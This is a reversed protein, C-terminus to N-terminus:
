LGFRSWTTAGIAPRRNDYARASRARRMRAHRRQAHASGRRVGSRRGSHPMVSATSMSLAPADIGRHRPRAQMTAMMRTPEMAAGVKGMAAATTGMATATTHMAQLAQPCTLKRLRAAGHSLHACRKCRRISMRTINTCVHCCCLGAQRQACNCLPTLREPATRAAQTKMTTSIGKIHAAQSRLQAQRQRMKVLQRALPKAADPNTKAAVKLQQVLKTEERALNAAERELDANCDRPTLSQLV